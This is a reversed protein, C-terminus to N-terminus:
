IRSIDNLEPENSDVTDWLYTYDIVLKLINDYHCRGNLRSKLQQMCASYALDLELSM